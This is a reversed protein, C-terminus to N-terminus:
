RSDPHLEPAFAHGVASQPNLGFLRFFADNAYTLRSNADRRFIPDGQSDVLGKYRAESENLRANIEAAAKLSDELREAANRLEAAQRDLLTSRERAAFFGHLVFAILVAVLAGFALPSIWTLRGYLVVDALAALAM